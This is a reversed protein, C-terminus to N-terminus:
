LSANIIKGIKCIPFVFKLPNLPCARLSVALVFSPGFALTGSKFVVDQGRYWNNDNSPPKEKYLIPTLRSYTTMM